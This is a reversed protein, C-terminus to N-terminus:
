IEQLVDDHGGYLDWCDFDLEEREGVGISRVKLGSTWPIKEMQINKYMNM